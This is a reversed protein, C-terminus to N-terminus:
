VPKEVPLHSPSVSTTCVFSELVLQPKVSVAAREGICRLDRFTEPADIISPELNLDGDVIGFGVRRRPRDLEILVDNNIGIQNIVDALFVFLISRM